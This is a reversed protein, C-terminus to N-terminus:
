YRTNPSPRPPSPAAPRPSGPYSGSIRASPLSRGEERRPQGPRAGEQRRPYTPACPPRRGRQTAPGPGATRVPLSCRRSSTWLPFSPIWWRVTSPWRVPAYSDLLDEVAHTFGSLETFAVTASGGKLTHAARFLEDV